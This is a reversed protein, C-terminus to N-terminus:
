SRWRARKAVRPLRGPRRALGHETKSWSHPRRVLDVVAAYFALSQALWYVPIFALDLFPPWHGRARAGAFAIVAMSGYALAVSVGALSLAASAQWSTNLPIPSIGSGYLLLVLLFVPHAALTVIAASLYVLLVAAKTCRLDRALPNRLSVLLTQLWGKLWRTRQGHWARWDLPAEEFTTSALTQLEYGARSLRVALDADETVNYPDWGGVAELAVRRFHNSTGGLPFPWGRASFWPLLCDFLGAYELRFQRAFIRHSGHDIALHAQLCAVRQPLEFFRASALRLQDPEPRDEGDYVAVLEGRALALGHCLARPKTRPKGPPVVVIRMGARLLPALATRTEHDDDELLFLIELCHRPYDLADLAAALMPVVRAERYLPVLVSYVPPPGKPRPTSPLRSVQGVAGATLRAIGLLMGFLTAIVSVGVAAQGPTLTLGLAFAGSLAVFVGLQTQTLTRRASASPRDLALRQGPDAAAIARELAQPSAIRIRARMAPFRRLYGQFEALSEPAPAVAFLMEGDRNRGIPLPGRMEPPPPFDPNHHSVFGGECLHGLGLAEAFACYYAEGSVFGREILVRAPSVAALRAERLVPRLM